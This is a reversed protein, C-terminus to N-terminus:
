GWKRDARRQVGDLLFLFMVFVIRFPIDVGVANKKPFIIHSLYCYAHCLFTELSPWLAEGILYPCIHLLRLCTQPATSLPQLESSIIIPHWIKLHCEETKRTFHQWIRLTHCVTHGGYIIWLWCYSQHATFAKHKRACVHIRCSACPDM